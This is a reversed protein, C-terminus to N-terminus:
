QHLVEEEKASALDDLQKAYKDTMKQVEEEADKQVDEDMTKDKKIAANADRRIGRIQIKCEEQIKGVQKAMDKRVDGTLQPVTMRIVTGDNLPHIGLNAENCAREIDKLSSPDYPKIVLTRGEQVSIGAIQNLPTPAGYYDVEVKSLMNANAMGTRITALEEKMHKLVKEMKETSSDIVAYAM